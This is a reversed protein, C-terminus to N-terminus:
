ALSLNVANGRPVTKPQGSKTQPATAFIFNSNNPSAPARYRLKL